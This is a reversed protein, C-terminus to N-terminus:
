ILLLLNGASPYERSLSKWVHLAEDTTGAGLHSKEPGVLVPTGASKQLLVKFLERYLKKGLGKGRYRAAVNAQAVMWNNTRQGARQELRAQYSKAAKFNLIMMANIGGIRQGNALMEVIAQGYEGRSRFTIVPSIQEHLWADRKKAMAYLEEPWPGEGGHKLCNMVTEEATYEAYAVPQYMEYYVDRPVGNPKGYQTQADFIMDGMEVWGHVVAKPPNQWKDTITGHVVKFKTKDNLDPHWKPSHGRRGKTVHSEFWEDAKQYAFPFCMGTALINQEHLLAKTYERLLHQM